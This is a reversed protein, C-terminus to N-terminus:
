VVFLDIKILLHFFTIESYLIGMFLVKKGPHYIRLVLLSHLFPLPHDFSTQFLLLHHFLYTTAYDDMLLNDSVEDAYVNEIKNDTGDSAM